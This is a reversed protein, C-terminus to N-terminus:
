QGQFYHLINRGSTNYSFSPSLQCNNGSCKGKNRKLTDLGPLLRDLAPVFPSLGQSVLKKYEKEGLKRAKTYETSM